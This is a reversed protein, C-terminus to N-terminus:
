GFRHMPEVVNGAKNGIPDPFCIAVEPDSIDGITNKLHKPGKRKLKVTPVQRFYPREQGAMVTPRHKEVATRKAVQRKLHKPGVTATVQKKQAPKRNKVVPCSAKSGKAPGGAVNGCLVVGLFAGAPQREGDFTEVIVNNKMIGIIPQDIATGGIAAQIRIRGLRGNRSCWKLGMQAGNDRLPQHRVRNAPLVLPNALAEFVMAMGSPRHFDPTLIPKVKQHRLLLRRVSTDDGNGGIYGFQLVGLRGQPRRFLTVSIKGGINGVFQARGQGDQARTKFGHIIRGFVPGHAIFYRAHGSQEILHQGGRTQFSYRGFRKPREIQAVDAGPRGRPQPM